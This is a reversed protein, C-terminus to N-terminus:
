KGTYFNMYTNTYPLIADFSDTAGNEAEYTYTTGFAGVSKDIQLIKSTNTGSFAGANSLFTSAAGAQNADILMEIGLMIAGAAGAILLGTGLTLAAGTIIPALLIGLLLGGVGTLVAGGITLYTQVAGMQKELDNAVSSNVLFCSPDDISVNIIPLNKMMMKM